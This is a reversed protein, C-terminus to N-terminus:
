FLLSFFAYSVSQLIDNITLVEHKSFVGVKEEVEGRHPPNWGLLALGNIM